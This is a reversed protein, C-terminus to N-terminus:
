VENLLHIWQNVIEGLEFRATSDYAEKAMNNRNDTKEILLSLAMSYENVRYPPVLLGNIGNDIIDTAALYSSFQIPVCAYAASETVTLSWGEVVSAMCLISASKYYPTVETKYGEFKVHCNPYKNIFRDVLSREPGDGVITLRWDTYNVFIKKWSKLIYKIGKEGSLRGVYLVEKEKGELLGEFQPIPVTIPNHISTVKDSSYGVINNLLPIYKGSLLVYKDSLILLKQHRKKVNRKTLYQYYYYLIHFKLLRFVGKPRTHRFIKLLADPSSHVATIIKIQPFNQRIYEIGYEIPDYSDQFLVKNIQYTVILDSLERCVVDRNHSTAKKFIIKENLEPLLDKEAQQILSYIVIKNITENMQMKNALLTTVKEIGGYGPYRNIYILLNIM